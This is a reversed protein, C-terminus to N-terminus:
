KQNVRFASIDSRKEVRTCSALGGKVLNSSCSSKELGASKVIKKPKKLETKVLFEPSRYNQSDGTEEKWLLKDCEWKEGWILSRLGTAGKLEKRGEISTKTAGKKQLKRKGTGRGWGYIIGKAHIL